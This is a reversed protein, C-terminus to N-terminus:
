CGFYLKKKYTTLDSRYPYKRSDYILTLARVVPSNKAFDREITHHSDHARRSTLRIPGFWNSNFLKEVNHIDVHKMCRGQSKDLLRFSKLNGLYPDPFCEADGLKSKSFAIDISQFSSIDDSHLVKSYPHKWFYPYEWIM